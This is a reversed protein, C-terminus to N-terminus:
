ATLRRRSFAAGLAVLGLCAVLLMRAWPGLAPAPSAITFTFNWSQQVDPIGDTGISLNYNHGAILSGTKSFNGPANVLAPRYLTTNTTSDTLVVDDCNGCNALGIRSGSFSYNAGTDAHFSVSYISLSRQPYFSGSGFASGSGTMVLPSVTSNQSASGPAFGSNLTQNFAAFASPPSASEFNTGCMPPFSPPCPTTQIQLMRGDSLLTISPAAVSARAAFLCSVALLSVIRFPRRRISAHM